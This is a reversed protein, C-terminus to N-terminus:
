GRSKLQKVIAELYRGPCQTAHLDQHGYIERAPIGYTKRLFAVLANLSAAAAATPPQEQFDGMLVVGINSKNLPGSGAHAGQFKMLRGEWVRGKPDIVYHYALDAWDRDRIHSEQMSRILRATGAMTDASDVDDHASHHITLRTPKGMLEMQNVKAALAPNWRARPLISLEGAAVPPPEEVTERPLPPAAPPPPPVFGTVDRVGEADPPVYRALAKIEADLCSKVAIDGKRWIPYLYSWVIIPPKGMRIYTRGRIIQVSQLAAADMYRGNEALNLEHLAGQFDGLGLMARALGLHAMGDESNKKVIEVFVAKAVAYDDLALYGEAITLAEEVNSDTRARPGARCGAAAAALLALVLLTAIRALKGANRAEKPQGDAPKRM